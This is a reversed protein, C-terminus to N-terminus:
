VTEGARVLAEAEWRVRKEVVAAEPERGWGPRIGAIVLHREIVPMVRRALSVALM